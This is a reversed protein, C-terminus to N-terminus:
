PLGAKELAARLKQRAHFLRTRVTGEPISLIQAVVPSPREEVECLVFVSRHEFSLGDLARLLLQSLRQQEADREPSGSSREPERAFQTMARRRRAASRVHHRSHNVAIGIIFTRLSGIGNWRRLAKPLTLFTDHVLDWAAEEGILRRAFMHVAAHHEDYLRGLASLDGQGASTILADASYSPEFSTAMGDVWSDL